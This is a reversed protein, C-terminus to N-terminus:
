GLIYDCEVELTKSVYSEGTSEDRVYVTFSHTGGQPVDEIVYQNSESFDQVVVDDILFCYEYNGEGMVAEATMVVDKDASNMRQNYEGVFYGKDYYLAKIVPIDSEYPEVVEYLVTRDSSVGFSNYVRLTIFYSGADEFTYTFSRNESREAVVEDGIIFEYSFPAMYGRAQATFTVPVGAVAEGSDYDAYLSDPSVDIYGAEKSFEDVIGAVYKQIVTADKITIDGDDDVDACYESSKSFDCLSALFKQIATADKISVKMDLDADGPKLPPMVASINIVSGLLVLVCIFFLLLKKM